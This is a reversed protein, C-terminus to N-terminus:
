VITTNDAGVGPFAEIIAKVKTHILTATVDIMEQNTFTITELYKLFETPYIPDKGADLAAQSRYVEWSFVVNNGIKPFTVGIKVLAGTAVTGGDKTTMAVNVQLGM